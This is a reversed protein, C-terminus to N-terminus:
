GQFEVSVQSAALTLSEIAVDNSTASFGPAEMKLPFADIVKWTVVPAEGTENMLSIQINKKDVATVQISSFWQYLESGAPTVGRKLTLNIDGRAGPLYTNGKTASLGDKYTIMQREMSLGSVESFRMAEMGDIEVNFHYVPLPFSTKIDQATTAM